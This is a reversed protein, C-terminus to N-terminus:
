RLMSRRTLGYNRRMTGDMEGSDIAQRVQDRITLEVIRGGDADRREQVDVPSTGRGRMDNVVVTVNGGTSSVGLDGNAARKLPMVAEPGSEGMLGTSKGSMPFLTPGGIVAGKAFPIVNGGSFAAGKAFAGQIAGFIPEVVFNSISLRLLDELVSDVFDKFSAKGTKVFEVIADTLRDAWEDMKQNLEDMFKDFGEKVEETKKGFITFIAIVTNIAAVVLYIPGLISIWAAAAATAATTAAVTMATYAMIMSGMGAVVAGIAQVLKNKFSAGLQGVEQGVSGLWGGIDRLGDIFKARMDVAGVILADIGDRPEYLAKSMDEAAIRADGFTSALVPRIEEMGERLQNLADSSMGQFDEWYKRGLLPIDESFGQQELALVDQGIERLAASVPHLEDRLTKARDTLEEFDLVPADLLGNAGGGAGGKGSAGGAGGLLGGSFDPNIIQNYINLLDNKLDDMVGKTDTAAGDKLNAMNERLEKAQVELGRAIEGLFTEKGPGKALADIHINKLDGWLGRQRALLDESRKTLTAYAGTIDNIQSQIATRGTTAMGGILPASEFAALIADLTLLAVKKLNLFARQANISMKEFGSKLLAWLAEGVDGIKAFVNKSSTFIWDLERTVAAAFEIVLAKNKVIIIAATAFVAIWGATAATTAGLAIGLAKISTIISPLVFGITGLAFSVGGLTAVIPAITGVLGENASAWKTVTTAMEASAQALSTITPLLANGIAVRLGNLREGLRRSSNTFSDQTRILDGQDERTQDLIALYRGYIKQQETLTKGVGEVNHRLLAQKTAAEGVVIGLAKLPEIEGTIGSRIKEFAVDLEINRLSSMDFALQTLAKSMHTSAEEAFGMNKIMLNMTAANERIRFESVGIADSLEKSWARVSDSMGKFSIQFLNEMEEVDAAAKISLAGIGAIATGFALLETRAGVVANGILKFQKAAHQRMDTFRSNVKTVETKVSQIGKNWGTLDLKMRGVISGAEFSAGM